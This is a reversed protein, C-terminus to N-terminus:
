EMIEFYVKEFTEEVNKLDNNALIFCSSQSMSISILILVFEMNLVLQKNCITSINEFGKYIIHEELRGQQMVIMMNLIISDIESKEKDNLISLDIPDSLFWNVHKSLKANNIDKNTYITESFILLSKKIDNTLNINMGFDIIGLKSNGDNDKICLINGTHLDTHYYSFFWIQITIFTVLLKLYQTLETPETIETPFKGELYELIIFDTNKVDDDTTNYVKPIIINDCVSYKKMEDTSTRIAMIEKEFDCQSILYDTTKTISKFSDLSSQIKPIFSSLLYLMNYIFTVNASGSEIRQKIQNRKMKIVVKTNDNMTGLYAVSVMGSHFPKEVPDSLTINYKKSIYELKQINLESVDYRVSHTNQKFIDVIETPLYKNSTMSQFIKVFLINKKICRNIVNNICTAIKNRGTVYMCMESFCIYQISALIVFNDVLYDINFMM